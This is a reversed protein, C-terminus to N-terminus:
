CTQPGIQANQSNPSQSSVGYCTQPGGTCKVRKFFEYLYLALAHIAEGKDIAQEM